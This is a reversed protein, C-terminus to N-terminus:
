NLIYCYSHKSHQVLLSLNLSLDWCGVIINWPDVSNLLTITDLSLKYVM